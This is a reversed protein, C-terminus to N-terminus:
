NCTTTCGTGYCCQTCFWTRGDITVTWYRCSAYAGVSTAAIIAAIILKKM